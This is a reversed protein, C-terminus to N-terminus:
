YTQMRGLEERQIAQLARDYYSLAQAKNTMRDTKLLQSLLGDTLATQRDFHTELLLWVEVLNKAGKIIKGNSVAVCYTGTHMLKILTKEPL